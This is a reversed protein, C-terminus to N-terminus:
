PNSAWQQCELFDIQPHYKVWAEVTPKNGIKQMLEQTKRKDGALCAFKAYNNFYWPNPYRQILDEFGMSMKEWQVPMESRPPTPSSPQFKLEGNSIFATWFVQAYLSQGECQSTIRAADQAFQEAEIASGHWKPLLYAFVAHYTDHYYAEKALAEQLLARVVRKSWGQDKAITLMNAYWNPDVSAIESNEELVARALKINQRFPRWATLPVEGSFKNGRFHWARDILFNSYAIYPAPSDPYAKIWALMKAEAGSWTKEDKEDRLLERDLIGAYFYKLNWRGGPTRSTRSQYIRYQRELESFNSSSFAIASQSLISNRAEMEASGANQPQVCAMTSAPIDSAVHIPKSALCGTLSLALLLFLTTKM